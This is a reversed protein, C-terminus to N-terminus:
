FWRTKSIRSFRGVNDAGTFAHFAPLAGAKEQGLAKWIPETEVTVSAMHIASNRCLKEYHAVALVLVDTDPSFIVMQAKPCRQAASAALCIMPTDAEEQNNEEFCMKSRNSRTSGSASTIFLRQSNTNQNLVAQTLYETLDAKTQEHSLFRRMPIHKINTKDDIQCQIPDKGQQRKERTKQKLSDAKYTDFVLIVEDFDATLMLLRDNFHQGLDKVTSITGQKMALQQVLVMGDVVAIQPSKSPTLSTEPGDGHEASM